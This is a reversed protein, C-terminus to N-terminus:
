GKHLKMKNRLISDTLLLGAIVNIGAFISFLTMKVKSELNFTPMNWNFHPQASSTAWDINMFVFAITVAISVLFFAAIGRIIGFNIYTKMTPAMRTRAVEELVNKSFRLSPQDAELGSSFAANMAQMDEYDGRWAADTAIMGAVFQKEADSCNGDIYDWLQQQRNEQNM